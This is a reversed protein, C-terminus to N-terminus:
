ACPLRTSPRAAPLQSAFRAQDDGPGDQRSGVFEAHLNLKVGMDNYSGVESPDNPYLKVSSVLPLAKLARMEQELSNLYLEMQEPEEDAAREDADVPQKASGASAPSPPPSPVHPDGAVTGSTAPTTRLENRTVSTPRAAPSPSTRSSSAFLPGFVLRLASGVALM